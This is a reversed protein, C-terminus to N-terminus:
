PDAGLQGRSLWGGRAEESAAACQANRKPTIRPMARNYKKRAYYMTRAILMMALPLSLAQVDLNAVILLGGPKIVRGFEALAVEADVFQLVLAIFATDFSAQDFSLKMCDEIQFSVNGQDRLGSRTLELMGKAIDTAVVSDAREALM